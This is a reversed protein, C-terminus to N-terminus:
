HTGASLREWRSEGQGVGGVLELALQRAWERYGMASPHVGDSAIYAPETPFRVNCHAADPLEKTLRVLHHNLLAARIGLATRLPQPLAPFTGIPPVASFVVIQCGRQRLVNALGRLGSRWEGVSTMRFVDNVGLLVVAADCRRQPEARLSSLVRQVTMGNGGLLHWVVNRELLAALARALYGPIADELTTAGVGCATSEGLIAVELTELAPDVIRGGTRSGAAEPLRPVKSRLRSAQLLLLPLLPVCAWWAVHLRFLRGLTMSQASDSSAARPTQWSKTV